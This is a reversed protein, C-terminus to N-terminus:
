SFLSTKGQFDMYGTYDPANRVPVAPLVPLVVPLCWLIRGPMKGMMGATLTCDVLSVNCDSLQNIGCM